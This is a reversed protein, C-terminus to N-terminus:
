HISTTQPIYPLCVYYFGESQYIAPVLKGHYQYREMLNKIGVGTSEVSQPKQTISNAVAIQEHDATIIIKVPRNLSAVNHKLANEVLLQLGLAPILRTTLEPKIRKELLVKEGYRVQMLHMYNDIIEIERELTNLPQIGNRILNSFNFALKRIFKEAKQPQHTILNSASNLSNFLFHPTLQSRLLKFQLEEKRRSDRMAQITEKSFRAFSFWSFDIWVLILSLILAVVSGKITLDGSIYDLGQGLGNEFMRELLYSYLTLSGWILATIFISRAVHGKDWPQLKAIFLYGMSLVLSTAICMLLLSGQTWSVPGLWNLLGGNYLLYLTLSTTLVLALLFSITKEM